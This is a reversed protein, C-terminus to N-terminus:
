GYLHACVSGVRHQASDVASIGVCAAGAAGAWQAPSSRRTLPRLLPTRSCTVCGVCLALTAGTLALSLVGPPSLLGVWAAVQGTFGVSHHSPAQTLEKRWSAGARRVCTIAMFDLCLAANYSQTRSWPVLHFLVSGYFGVTTWRALALARAPLPTLAGWRGACALLMLELLALALVHVWGRALTRPTGNGYSTHRGFIRWEVWEVSLPEEACPAGGCVAGGTLGRSASCRANTRAAVVGERDGPLSWAGARAGGARAACLRRARQGDEVGRPAQALSLLRLADPPTRTHSLCMCM